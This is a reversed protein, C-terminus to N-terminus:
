PGATEGARVAELRALGASLLPRAFEQARPLTPRIRDHMWQLKGVARSAPARGSTVWREVLPVMVELFSLSDAAQLLDAEPWGGLEHVTVLKTVRATLAVPAGQVHLWDGTIQACREQHYRLYGPDDFDNASDWPCEPDRFARESDHTVAAIRLAEGGDPELTDAWQLTRTLHRPHPHVEEIWSSARDLLESV